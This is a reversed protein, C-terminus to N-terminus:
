RASRMPRRRVMTSSAQNVGSNQASPASDGDNQTSVPECVMARGNPRARDISAVTAAASSMGRLLRAYASLRNAIAEPIPAPTATAASFNASKPSLPQRSTYRIESM